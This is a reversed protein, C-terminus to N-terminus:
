VHARGIEAGGYYFYIAGGSTYGITLLVIGLKRLTAGPTQTGHMADRAVM